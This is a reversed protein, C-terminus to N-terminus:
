NYPPIENKKTKPFMLKKVIWFPIIFNMLLSSIIHIAGFSYWDFIFYPKVVM